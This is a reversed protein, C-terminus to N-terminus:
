TNCPAFFTSLLNHRSAFHELFCPTGRLLTKYFATNHTLTNWPAFHASYCLTGLSCLTGSLLTNMLRVFWVLNQFEKYLCTLLFYVHQSGSDKTQTFGQISFDKLIMKCSKQIQQLGIFIFQQAGFSIM